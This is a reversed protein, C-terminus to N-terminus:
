GNQEAEKLLMFGNKFNAKAAPYAPEIDEPWENFIEHTSGPMNYFGKIRDIEEPYLDRPWLNGCFWVLVVGERYTARSVRAFRGAINSVTM